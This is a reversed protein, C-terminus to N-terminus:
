AADVNPLRMDLRLLLREIAGNGPQWPEFDTDHYGSNTVDPGAPTITKLLTTLKLVAEDVRSCSKKAEGFLFEEEHAYKNRLHQDVDHSYHQVNQQAQQLRTVFAVMQDVYTLLSRLTRTWSEDTLLLSKTICELYHQHAIALTEPDHPLEQDRGDMDPVSKGTDASGEADVKTLGIRSQMAWDQFTAWSLPIVEEAFYSGIESLIFVIM